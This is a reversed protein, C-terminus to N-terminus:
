HPEPAFKIVQNLFKHPGCPILSYAKGDPFYWAEHVIFFPLISGMLVFSGYTSYLLDTLADVQGVM